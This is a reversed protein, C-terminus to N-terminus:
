IRQTRAQTTAARRTVSSTIRRASIPAVLRGLSVIHNGQPFDEIDRPVGLNHGQNSSVPGPETHAASM